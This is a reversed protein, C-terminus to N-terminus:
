GVSKRDAEDAMVGFRVKVPDFKYRFSYFGLGSPLVDLLVIDEKLRRDGVVGGAAAAQGAGGAFATIAPGLWGETAQTRLPINETTKLGLAALIQQVRRAKEEQQRQFEGYEATLRTQEVTRPLSTGTMLKLLTDASGAELGPALGIAKLIREQADSQTQYALGSRAGVLEKNLRQTAQQEATMRDSGFAGSSGYRRTIEPLIMETFDQVAPDRISKQFFDEFNVPAGGTKLMQQLATEAEADVGAGSARQMIKQELAELSLGELDSLGTTLQGGFPAGADKAGLEGLLATLTAQQEPTMSPLSQVWAKPSEGLIWDKIAIM